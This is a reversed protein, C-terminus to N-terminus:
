RTNSLEVDWANTLRDIMEQEKESISGDASAVFHLDALLAARQHAPVVKKLMDVSDEFLRKDPGQVYAHMAERVVQLVQSNEADPIWENIKQAIADVESNVIEDDTGHALELYVLALDHVPTWGGESGHGNDNGNGNLVSWSQAGDGDEEVHVDWARALEGIFSGEAYLFKDDALAIDTLDVVIARRVDPELEDRVRRVAAEVGERAREHTYDELADKIASLVTEEAAETQWARLRESIVRVEPESLDQDTSHALAIYILALDRLISRRKGQAEM